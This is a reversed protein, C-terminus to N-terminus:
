QSPPVVVVVSRRRHQHAVYAQALLPAVLLPSCIGALAGVPMSLLGGIIVMSTNMYPDELVLRVFGLHGLIAGISATIRLYLSLDPHM